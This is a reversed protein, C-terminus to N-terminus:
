KLEFFLRRNIVIQLIQQTGGLLTLPLIVPSRNLQELSPGLVDVPPHILSFTGTILHCNNILLHQCTRKTHTFEVPIAYPRQAVIHIKQIKTQFDASLTSHLTQRFSIAVIGTFSSSSGLYQFKCICIKNQRDIWIIM